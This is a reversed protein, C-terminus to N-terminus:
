VLEARSRALADPLSNVSVGPVLDIRVAEGASEFDEAMCFNTIGFSSDHSLDSPILTASARGIIPGKM